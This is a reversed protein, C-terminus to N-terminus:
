DKKGDNQMETKCIEQEYYEKKKSVVIGQNPNPM